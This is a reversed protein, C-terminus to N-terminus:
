AELKYVALPQKAWVVIIKCKLKYSKAPYTDLNDDHKEYNFEPQWNRIRNRLENYYWGESNWLSFQSKTTSKGDEM